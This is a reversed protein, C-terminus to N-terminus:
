RTASSAAFIAKLATKLRRLPSRAKRERDEARNSHPFPQTPVPRGLFACLEKWSAGRELDIELFDARGAFYNRVAENHAAYVERCRTENGKAYPVGYIWQMVDSPTDAFHRVMSHSWRDIDRVTLIFKSGPYETDLERYLLPWPNDTHADAQAVRARAVDMIKGNTLPPAIFVGKPHNLRLGGTATYGLMALAENLSSTGTKQFGVGFIKPATPLPM